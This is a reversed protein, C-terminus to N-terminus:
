QFKSVKELFIPTIDDYELASYLQAEELSNAMFKVDGIQYLNIETSEPSKINYEFKNSYKAEAFAIASWVLMTTAEWYKGFVISLSGTIFLIGSMVAMFVKYATPKKIILSVQNKYNIM